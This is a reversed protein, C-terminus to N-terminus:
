IYHLYMSNGQIPLERGFIVIYGCNNMVVAWAYWTPKDQFLGWFYENQLRLM